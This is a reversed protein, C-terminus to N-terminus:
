VAVKRNCDEEQAIGLPNSVVIMESERESHDRAEHDEGEKASDGDKAIRCSTLSSLIQVWDITNIYHLYLKLLLPIAVAVFPVWLARKWGM